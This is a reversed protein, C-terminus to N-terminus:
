SARRRNNKALIKGSDGQVRFALPIVEKVTGEHISITGRGSAQEIHWNTKKGDKADFFAGGGM